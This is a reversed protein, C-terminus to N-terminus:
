RKKGGQTMEEFKNEVIKAIEDSDLPKREAMQRVQETLEQVSALLVATLQDQGGGEGGGMFLYPRPANQREEATMTLIAMTNLVARAVPAPINAGAADKMFELLAKAAASQGKARLEAAQAEVEAEILTARTRERTVAAQQRAKLLEPNPIPESIRFQTLRIGLRLLGRAINKSLEIRQKNQLTILEDITRQATFERLVAVITEEIYKVVGPISVQLPDKPDRSIELDYAVQKPDFIEAFGVTNIQIITDPQRVESSSRTPLNEVPLDVLFRRVSVRAGVKTIMPPFVPHLGPGYVTVARGFLTMVWNEGEPVQVFVGFAPGVKQTLTEVARIVEKQEEPLLLGLDVQPQLTLEGAGQEDETSINRGGLFPLKLRM